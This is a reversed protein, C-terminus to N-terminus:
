VRLRTAAAASPFIYVSQFWGTADGVLRTCREAKVRRKTDLAKPPGPEADQLALIQSLAINLAFLPPTKPPPPFYLFKMTGSHKPDPLSIMEAPKKEMENITNWFAGDTHVKAEKRQLAALRGLEDNAQDSNQFPRVSEGRVHLMTEKPVCCNCVYAFVNQFNRDEGNLHYSSEYALSDSFLSMFLNKFSLWIDKVYFIASGVLALIMSQVFPSGTAFTEMIGAVGGSSPRSHANIKAATPPSPSANSPVTGNNQISSPLSAAFPVTQLTSSHPRFFLSMITWFLLLTIFVVAVVRAGCKGHTVFNKIAVLTREM